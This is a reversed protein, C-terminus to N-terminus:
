CPGKQTWDAILTAYIEKAENSKFHIGDSAMGTIQPVFGDWFGVHVNPYKGQLGVIRGNNGAIWDRDAAVTLFCVSQVEEPPLNAMIAAFTEDSVEGNTGIHIVVKHGLRGSARLQSVVDIVQKGQRSEAADVVFGKAELQAKAGLM